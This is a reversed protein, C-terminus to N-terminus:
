SSLMKPEPPPLSMGPGLGPTTIPVTMAATTLKGPPPTPASPVWTAVSIPKEM